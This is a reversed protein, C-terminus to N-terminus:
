AEPVLKVASAFRGTSLGSTAACSTDTSDSDLRFDTGGDSGNSM